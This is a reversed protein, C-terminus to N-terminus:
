PRVVEERAVDAEVPQEMLLSAASSSKPWAPGLGAHVIPRAGQRRRRGDRLAGFLTIELRDSPGADTPRDRLAVSSEVVGAKRARATGWDDQRYSQLPGPGADLLRASAPFLASARVRVPSGKM